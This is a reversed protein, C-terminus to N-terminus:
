DALKFSLTTEWRDLDPEEVPDTVYLELRAAWRQGDPSDHSDFSLGQAEAHALLDATAQMLTDPHGHHTTELYRGSPLEAVSVRDDGSAPAAITVGVQLTLSGPMNIVDYKWFPPGAPVVGRQSLWGFVEDNLPPVVSGLQDMSVTVPIAAYPQRDREVIEYTSM